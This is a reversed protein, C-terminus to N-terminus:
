SPQLKGPLAGPPNLRAQRSRAWVYVFTMGAPFWVVGLPFLGRSQAWVFAFMVGLLGALTPWQIGPSSQFWVLIRIASPLLIAWDFIWSYSATLLSILLMLDLYREWTFASAWKRWLALTLVFGCLSPLFVVWKPIGRFVVRLATGITPTAWIVPGNDSRAASLYASFIDPRFLAVIVCAVAIGSGAWALTRWRRRRIVWLVFLLWMPLLLHPKLSALLTFPALWVAKDQKLSWAMGTIGALVLLSVQGFYVAVICPFFWLSVLWSAMRHERPGGYVRWWYDSLFFILGSNLAFWAWRAYRFPFLAFPIMVSLAWPPNWPVVPETMDWGAARENELLRRQDYPNEGHCLLRAASWGAGFDVLANQDPRPLLIGVSVALMAAWIGRHLWARLINDRAGPHTM